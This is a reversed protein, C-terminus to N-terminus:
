ARAESWPELEGDFIVDPGAQSFSARRFALADRLRVIDLDGVAEIGTGVVIPAITVVLRGVRHERLLATILGAGGEVLVSGLGRRGLEDLLAGLDVRGDETAPLVVIEVDSRLFASRREWTARETTALITPAGGDNVVKSLPSLRLTSDVVVRVPSPGDVLRTTLRPDDAMVTGAGVMIAAHSARLRHAFRSSAEASIWQSEGTRTALRGDLTQAYHITVSPRPPRKPVAHGLRAIKAELYGTNVLNPLATVPVREVVTIGAAELAAVKAPNNTMLRIRTLGLELLIAAAGGYNRADVPLGMAANADVTDLGSDQLGYARLKNALGIGRGEQRLYLLVGAGESTIETLARGLQDGCDCRLSGVVDGTWCESHLRVLPADASAVDGHVLAVPESGDLHDAFVLAEFAGLRTPLRAASLRM